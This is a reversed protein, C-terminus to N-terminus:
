NLVMLQYTATAHNLEGKNLSDKVLRSSMGMRGEMTRLVEENLHMTAYDQTIACYDGYSLRQKAHLGEKYLNDVNVTGLLEGSAVHPAM